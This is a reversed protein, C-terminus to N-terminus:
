SRANAPPGSDEASSDAAARLARLEAVDRTLQRRSERLRERGARRTERAAAPGGKRLAERIEARVAALDRETPRESQAATEHDTM